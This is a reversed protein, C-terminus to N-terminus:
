NLRDCHAEIVPGKGAVDMRRRLRDRIPMPTALCYVRMASVLQDAAEDTAAGGKAMLDAIQDGGVNCASLTLALAGCALLKKM